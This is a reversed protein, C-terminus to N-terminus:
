TMTERQQPASRRPEPSMFLCPLHMMQKFILTRKDTPFVWLYKWPCFPASICRLHRLHRAFKHTRLRAIRAFAMNWM